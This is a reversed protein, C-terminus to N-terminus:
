QEFMREVGELIREAADNLIETVIGRVDKKAISGSDQKAMAPGDYCVPLPFEVSPNSHAIPPHIPDAAWHHEYWQRRM